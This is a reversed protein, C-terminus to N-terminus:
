YGDTPAGQGGEGACHGVTLLKNPLSVPATSHIHNKQRECVIPATRSHQQQQQSRAKKRPVKKGVM